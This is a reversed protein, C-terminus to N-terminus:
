GSHGTKVKTEPEAKSLMEMAKFAREVWAVQVAAKTATAAITPNENALMRVSSRMLKRAHTPTDQIM